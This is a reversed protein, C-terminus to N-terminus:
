KQACVRAPLRSRGKRLRGDDDVGGPALGIGGHALLARCRRARPPCRRGPAQILRAYTEQVLDDIDLHASFKARLYARLESEHPQVEEAFWRTTEPDSPPM